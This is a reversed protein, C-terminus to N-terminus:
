IPLLVDVTTGKGPVSSIQIEGGHEFIIQRSGFLSWNGTSVRGATVKFGPDFITELEAPEMGHGNDQIKVRVMSDIKETSVLVRGNGDVAEIANSLLSSFLTTLQHRRCTLQPLPQLDFNLSVSDKLSPKLLIAVDGLLENLDTPQRETDDLDIFRQLRAIVKKLREM